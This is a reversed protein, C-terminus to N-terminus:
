EPRDDGAGDHIARLEARLEALDEPFVTVTRGNVLFQYSEDERIVIVAPESM